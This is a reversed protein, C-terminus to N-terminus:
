AASGLAAAGTRRTLWWASALHVGASLTGGVAMGPIGRTIGICADGLQAAGAVALVPVLGRREGRLLYGLAAALPVARVAYAEAYVRLGATPETGPPLLLAPRVVGIVAAAASGAALAANLVTLSRRM